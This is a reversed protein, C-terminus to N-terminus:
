KNHKIVIKPFKASKDVPRLSLQAMATKAGVNFFHALSNKDDLVLPMGRDALTCINKNLPISTLLPASIKQSLKEGGGSGFVPTVHGCAGCQFHSMNEVVGLVPIDLKHFMEASREVDILAVDQPTTVIIAGQIPVKQCLSLQVDGTGPPLDVILYDLKPWLTDYILQEMAKGLMPGRWIMAADKPVLYGISMTALGHALVPHIKKDKVVPKQDAVGLMTPQSPGYIDADLIGVNAGEKQLAAAFNLAVTSKGVGGKGSAVVIINKIGPLLHLSPKATHADIGHDFTIRCPTALLTKLEKELTELGTQAPYGLRIQVEPVDAPLIKVKKSDVLNTKLFPDTYHRLKNELAEVLM